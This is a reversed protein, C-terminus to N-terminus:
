SAPTAGCRGDSTRRDTISASIYAALERGSQGSVARAWPAAPSVGCAFSGIREFTGIGQRIEVHIVLCRVWVLLYRLLAVAQGATLGRLAAFLAARDLRAAVLPHM